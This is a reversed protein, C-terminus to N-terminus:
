RFKIFPFLDLSRARDSKLVTITRALDSFFWFTFVACLLFKVPPALSGVLKEVGPHLFRLFVVALIGWCLSYFACVRGSINAFSQSYDWWIVGCGKEWLYSYIFEAATAAFFGVAFDAAIGRGPSLLLILVTGLGYVPCAPLSYLTRRPSPYGNLVLHYVSELLCGLLSYIYFYLIFELILEGKEKHEINYM